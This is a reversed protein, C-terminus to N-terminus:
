LPLCITFKERIKRLNPQKNNLQGIQLSRKRKKKKKGTGKIATYM